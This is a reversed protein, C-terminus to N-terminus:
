SPARPRTSSTRHKPTDTPRAHFSVGWCEMGDLGGVGVRVDMQRETETVPALGAEQRALLNGKFAGSDAMRDLLRAAQQPSHHHHQISHIPHISPTPPRAMAMRCDILGNSPNTSEDM